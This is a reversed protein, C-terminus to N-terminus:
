SRSSQANKLLLFTSLHIQKLFVHCRTFKQEIHPVEQVPFMSAWLGASGVTSYAKLSISLLLSPVITAVLLVLVIKRVVLRLPFAKSAIIGLPLSSLVLFLSPSSFYVDLFSFGWTHLLILLINDFASEVEWRM